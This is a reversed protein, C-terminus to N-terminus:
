KKRKEIYQKAFEELAASRLGIKQAEAKAADFTMGDRLVRRIMFFGGVRNASGCHIFVPRNKADDTLRLFEDAQEDKPGAQNSVPINFYKMGLKKTEAEEAAADFGAEGPARLNIITNIGQSKLEALHAPTPQGGTCFETNIKLFNQIGPVAQQGFALVGFVGVLLAAFMIKKM